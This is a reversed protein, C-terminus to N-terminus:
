NSKMINGLLSIYPIEKRDCNIKQVKMNLYNALVFDLNNFYNEYRMFVITFEDRKGDPIYYKISQEIEKMWQNNVDKIKIFNEYKTSDLLESVDQPIYSSSLIYSFADIINEFEQNIKKSYHIVGMEFSRIYKLAGNEVFLMDTITEGMNVLVLNNRKEMKGINVLYNYYNYIGIMELNVVYDNEKPLFLKLGEYVDRDLTFVIYRNEIKFYDFYVDEEKLYTVKTKLKWFLMKREEEKTAAKNELEFFHYHIFSTALNLVVGKEKIGFEKLFEFEQMHKATVDGNPSTKIYKYNAETIEIGEVPNNEYWKKIKKIYGEIKDKIGM